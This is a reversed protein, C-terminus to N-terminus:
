RTPGTQKDAGLRPDRGGATRLAEIATIVRRPQRAHERRGRWEALAHVAKARMDGDRSSPPTERSEPAGRDSAQSSRRGPSVPLLRGNFGKPTM